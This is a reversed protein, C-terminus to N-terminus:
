VLEVEIERDKSELSVADLNEILNAKTVKLSALQALQDVTKKKSITEILKGLLIITILAASIEFNHAHEMIQMEVMKPDISLMDYFEEDYGVCIMVIGYLWASTTGMVVLVDM